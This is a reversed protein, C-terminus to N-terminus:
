LDCQIPKSHYWSLGVLWYTLSYDLAVYIKPFLQWKRTFIICYRSKCMLFLELERHVLLQGINSKKVGFVDARTGKLYNVSSARLKCNSIVLIVDKLQMVYDRSDFLIHGKAIYLPAVQLIKIVTQSFHKKWEFLNFKHAGSCVRLRYLHMFIDLHVHGGGSAM